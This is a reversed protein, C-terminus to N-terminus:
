YSIPLKNFMKKLVQSYLIYRLKSIRSNKLNNILKKNILYKKVSGAEKLEKFTLQKLKRLHKKSSIHLNYDQPSNLRQNCLDCYRYVIPKQPKEKIEEKEEKPFKHAKSVVKETVDEDSEEKIYNSYRKIM